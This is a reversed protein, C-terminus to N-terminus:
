AGDAERASHQHFALKWGSDRRVYVSGILARYPRGDGRKVRAEYSLLATNADAELLAPDEISLDSWRKPDRATAAVEERRYIGRMESFVLMCRDDVHALFHDEGAEWFGRDIELLEDMLAM